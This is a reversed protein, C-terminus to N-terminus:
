TLGQVGGVAVKGAARSAPEFDFASEALLVKGIGDDMLDQSLEFFESVKVVAGQGKLPCPVSQGAAVPTRGTEPHLQLSLADGPFPGLFGDALQKFLPILRDM